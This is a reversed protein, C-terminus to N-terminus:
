NAAAKVRARHRAAKAQNGCTAMDCWRRRGTPSTDFFAWQCRDNACIRFREPRGAALEQVVTEAVLALADTLPSDAHRHGVRVATGDLELRPPRRGELTHNILEVSVREPKRQEVVAEVLDRLAGRVSRVWELNAETLRSRAEAHVLGHETFWNAADTPANFHEVIQGDDLDLTNIFDLAADLDIRHEHSGHTEM